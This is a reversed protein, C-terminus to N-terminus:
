KYKDIVSTYEYIKENSLVQDWDSWYAAKMNECYTKLNPVESCIFKEFPSGPMAWLVQALTGFVSADTECVENGFLFKNTGIIASIARLDKEMIKIIDERTHKGIGQHWAMNAIKTPRCIRGFIATHFPVKQIKTWVVDPDWCYRWLQIGWYLHEDMMIQVTKAVGIQGHQLKANLNKKFRRNLHEIILESDSMTRGETQVWPAKGRPGYPESTDVKYPIGTMRLYTELKLAFPSLNPIITARQFQHLIVYDKSMRDWLQLQKHLMANVYLRCTLGLTGMGVIGFCLSANESAIKSAAETLSIVQDEFPSTDKECTGSMYDWLRCPAKSFITTDM